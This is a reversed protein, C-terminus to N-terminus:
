WQGGGEGSRVVEARVYHKEIRTNTEINESSPKILKRRLQTVVDHGPVRAFVELFSEELFVKRAERVLRAGSEAGHVLRDTFSKDWTVLTGVGDIQHKSRWERIGFLLIFTFLTVNWVLSTFIRLTILVPENPSITVAIDSPTEGPRACFRSCTFGTKSCMIGFASPFLM